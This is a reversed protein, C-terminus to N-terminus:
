NLKELKILKEPDPVRTNKIGMRYVGFFKCMFSEESVREKESSFIKTM